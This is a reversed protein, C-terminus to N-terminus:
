RSSLSESYQLIELYVGNPKPTKSNNYLYFWVGSAGGQTRTIECPSYFQKVGYATQTLLGRLAMTDGGLSEGQYFQIKDGKRVDLDKVVVPVWVGYQPFSIRPTLATTQGERVLLVQLTEGPHGNVASGWNLDHAGEMNISAKGDM